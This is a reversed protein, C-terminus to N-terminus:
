EDGKTLSSLLTNHKDMKWIVFAWGYLGFDQIYSSLKDMDHFIFVVVLFLTTLIFEKSVLFKFM